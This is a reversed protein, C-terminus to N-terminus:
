REGEMLKAREYHQTVAQSSAISKLADRIDALVTVLAALIVAIGVRAFNEILRTDKM